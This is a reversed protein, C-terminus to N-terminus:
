FNVKTHLPNPYATLIERASTVNGTSTSTTRNANVNGGSDTRRHGIDKGDVVEMFSSPMNINAGAAILAKVCDPKDSQCAVHLPTHGEENISNFLDGLECFALM